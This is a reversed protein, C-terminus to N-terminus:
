RARGLWGEVIPLRCSARIHSHGRHSHGRVNAAPLNIQGYNFTSRVPELWLGLATVTVVIGRVNGIPRTAM